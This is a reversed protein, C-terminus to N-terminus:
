LINNKNKRRRIPKPAVNEAMFWPVSSTRGGRGLKGLGRQKRPDIDCQQEPYMIEHCRNRMNEVSRLKM